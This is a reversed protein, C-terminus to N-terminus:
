FLDQKARSLTFGHGDANRCTLGSPASRCTISGWHSSRGYALVPAEPSALTDGYCDMRADGDEGVWFSNGWDLDCDKPRPQAPEPNTMELLECDVSRRGEDEIYMCHINDSPTRFSQLETASAPQVLALILVAPALPRM